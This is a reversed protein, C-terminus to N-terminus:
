VSPSSTTKEAVVVIRKNGIYQEYADEPPAVLSVSDFGFNRLLFLVAGVSPVLSVNTLGGEKDGPYDTVIGFSGSLPMTNHYGGWDISGTLELQTTQTEVILIKKTLQAIKRLAGIPNELHYLLGLMLTIDAAEYNNINLEDITDKKFTVNNLGYVDKVLNCCEVHEERADVGTVYRLKKAMHYSFFGEHCAFDLCSYEGLPKKVRDGLARFVMELRTDHIKLIEKPVYTKTVAGSPLTFEYFWERALIKEEVMNM